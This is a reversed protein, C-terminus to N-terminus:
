AAPRKVRSNFKVSITVKAFNYDQTSKYDTIFDAPGGPGALKWLALASQAASAFADDMLRGAESPAYAMRRPAKSM